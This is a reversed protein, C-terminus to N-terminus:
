KESLSKLKSLWLDHGKHMGNPDTKRIEIAVPGKAVEETVVRCGKSVPVFLWPHYADIGTGKGFWGMRSEPVFESIKADIHLGFTDFEFETGQQLLGHHDNLIRVNASNPYWLPWKPAEVLLQWIRSCPASIFIENHAFLDADDPSFGAPWHIEPSRM